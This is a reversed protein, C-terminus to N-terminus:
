FLAATLFRREAEEASDASFCILDRYGYYYLDVKATGYSGGPMYESVAFEVHGSYVGEERNPLLSVTFRQPLEEYTVHRGPLTYFDEPKYTVGDVIYEDPCTKTVEFDESTVTVVYREVDRAGGGFAVRIIYAGDESGVEGAKLAVWLAQQPEGDSAASLGGGGCASLLLALALAWLISIHKKFRRM